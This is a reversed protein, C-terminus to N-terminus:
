HSLMALWTYMYNATVSISVYGAAHLTALSPVCPTLIGTIIIICSQAYQQLFIFMFDNTLVAYVLSSLIIIIFCFDVNRM